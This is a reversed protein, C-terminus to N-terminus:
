FGGMLTDFQVFSHSTRMTNGGEGVKTAGMALAMDKLSQLIKEFEEDAETNSSFTTMFQLLTDGAKMWKKIEAKSPTAGDASIAIVWKLTFHPSSYSTYSVLGLM